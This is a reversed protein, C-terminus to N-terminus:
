SKGVVLAQEFYYDQGGATWLIRVKWLGSRLNKASVRQTGAANLALPEAHDLRPDSPRYLQITGAPRRRAHVAPLTVLIGQEGSEYTVSVGRAFPQTRNLTDIKKQYLIEDEYYGHSVMDANQRVAWTIFAAAGCIAIVFFGIIGTPWLSQQPRVALPPQSTM